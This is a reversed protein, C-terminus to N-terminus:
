KRREREDSKIVGVIFARLQLIFIEEREFFCEMASTGLDIRLDHTIQIKERILPGSKYFDIQDGWFDQLKNSDFQYLEILPRGGTPELKSFGRFTTKHSQLGDYLPNDARWPLTRHVLLISPITECPPSFSALVQPPLAVQVTANSPINFEPNAGLLSRAVGRVGLVLERNLVVTTKGFHVEIMNPPVDQACTATPLVFAASGLLVKAFHLRLMSLADSATM